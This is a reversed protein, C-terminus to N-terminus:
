RWHFFLSLNLTPAAFIQKEKIYKRHQSYYTSWLITKKKKRISIIKAIINSAAVILIWKVHVILVAKSIHTLHYYRFNLYRFDSNKRAKQMKTKCNKPQSDPKLFFNHVSDSYKFFGAIWFNPSIGSSYSSNFDNLFNKKRMIIPNFNIM